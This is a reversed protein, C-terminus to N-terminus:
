TGDAENLRVFEAPLDLARPAPDTMPTPRYGIRSGAIVAGPGAGRVWSGAAGTLRGPTGWRGRGAGGGPTPMISAMWRVAPLWAAIWASPERAPRSWRLSGGSPGTATWGAAGPGATWFRGATMAARGSLWGTAERPQFSEM